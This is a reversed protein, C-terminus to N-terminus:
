PLLFPAAKKVKMEPEKVNEKNAVVHASKSEKVEDGPL